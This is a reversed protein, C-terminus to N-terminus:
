ESSPVDIRALPCASSSSVFTKISCSFSRNSHESIELLPLTRISTDSRSFAVAVMRDHEMLAGSDRP